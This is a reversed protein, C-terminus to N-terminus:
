PMAYTDICTHTGGYPSLAHHRHYETPSPHASKKKKRKKKKKNGSGPQGGRWAGGGKQREKRKERPFPPLFGEEGCM